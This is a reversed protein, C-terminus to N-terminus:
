CGALYLYQESSIPWDYMRRPRHECDAFVLFFLNVIRTLALEPKTLCVQIEGARPGGIFVLQVQYGMMAKFANKWFSPTGPKILKSFREM